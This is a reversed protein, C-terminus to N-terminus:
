PRKLTHGPCAQPAQTQEATRSQEALRTQEALVGARGEAATAADLERIAFKRRSLARREYRDLRLLQATTDRGAALEASLALKVRRVRLLDVQAEAVRTALACRLGSAGAGAITCALAAVEPALAPDALVPLSLGHRRPNRAMKAKGAPTRPGTSRQANARNAAIVAYSTM